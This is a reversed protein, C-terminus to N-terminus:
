LNMKIEHYVENAYYDVYSELENIGNELSSMEESIQKYKKIVSSENSCKKLNQIRNYFKKTKQTNCTLSGDTAFTINIINCKNIEMIKNIYQSKNPCHEVIFNMSSILTNLKNLLFSYLVEKIHEYNYSFDFKQNFYDIITSRFEQSTSKLAYKNVILQLGHEYNDNISVPISPLTIYLMQLAYFYLKAFSEIDLLVPQLKHRYLNRNEHLINIIECLNEDIFNQNKLLKVRDKFHLSSNSYHAVYSLIYSDVISDTLLFSLYYNEKKNSSILELCEEFTACMQKFDFM